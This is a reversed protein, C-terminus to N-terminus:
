NAAALLPRIERPALGGRLYGKCSYRQTVYSKATAAAVSSARSFGLMTNM